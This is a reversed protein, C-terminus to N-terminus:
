DLRNQYNHAREPPPQHSPTSSYPLRLDTPVETSRADEALLAHKARSSGEDSRTSPTPSASLRWRYTRLTASLRFGGFSCCADSSNSAFRCRDLRCLQPRTPHAIRHTGFCAKSRSKEVPLDLRFLKLRFLKLRIREASFFHTSFARERSCCNHLFLVYVWVAPTYGLWVGM